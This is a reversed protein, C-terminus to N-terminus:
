RVMFLRVFVYLAGLGVVAVALLRGLLLLDFRTAPLPPNMPTTRAFATALALVTYTPVNYCLTLSTMGVAYSALVGFVYPHLRATQPDLFSHKKRDGMRFLQSAALYFAGLFFAGGLVGLEVFCQLYSNHAVHGIVLDFKDKGVGFLPAERMLMLGDSWIQIREQATGEGTSIATIRGALLLAAAPLLVAGILLATRWGFRATLFVGLGAALALMAGRSQTLTLAYLFLILPAAWLFRLPGSRHDFLWYLGILFAVSILVGMENPDNFIGSGALRVFNVDQGTLKNHAFDVTQELNPLKVVGHFQLVAISITVTAFLLMWFLFVRLRAPSDVLGVFLIYYVIIKGFQLGNEYLKDFDFQALHSLLVALFVGLVCVTIARLELSKATFQELVATFSLALCALILFEYIPLGVLAPVIEAPRVFLAANVLLFLFFGAGHRPAAIAATLPAPRTPSPQLAVASNMPDQAALTLCAASM